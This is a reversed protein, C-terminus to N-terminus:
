FLHISAHWEQLGSSRGCSSGLIFSQIHEYCCLAIFIYQPHTNPEYPVTQNPSPPIHLPAAASTLCTLWGSHNDGVHACTHLGGWVCVCWRMVDIFLRACACMCLAVSRCLFVSRCLNVLEPEHHPRVSFLVSIPGASSLWFSLCHSNVIIPMKTTLLETIM